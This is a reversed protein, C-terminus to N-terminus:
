RYWYRSARDAEALKRFEQFYPKYTDFLRNESRATERASVYWPAPRNAHYRPDMVMALNALNDKTLETWGMKMLPELVKGYTRKFVPKQWAEEMETHTLRGDRNRDLDHFGTERFGSILPAAEFLLSDMSVDAKHVLNIHMEDKDAGSAVDKRVKDFAQMDAASVGSNERGWEDNRLKALDNLLTKTANVMMWDANPLERDGSAEELEDGSVFGDRDKDLKQFDKQFLRAMDESSYVDASIRSWMQDLSDAPITAWISESDFDKPKGPAIAKDAGQMREGDTLYKGGDMYVCVVPFNSM